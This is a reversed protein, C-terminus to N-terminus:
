YAKDHPVIEWEGLSYREDLAASWSALNCRWGPIWHMLFCSRELIIVLWRLLMRVMASTKEAHIRLKMFDKM